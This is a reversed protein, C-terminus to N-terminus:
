CSNTLKFMEYINPERKTFLRFSPIAQYILWEAGPIYEKCVRKNLFPSKYNAELIILHDLNTRNLIPIETGITYVLLQNSKLLETLNEILDWETGYLKALEEAKQPTRNVITVRFNAEKLAFIAAKAAGGAGIIVVNCPTIKRASLPGYVGECDTNYGTIKPGQKLILNVAGTQLATNDLETCYSFIEEKFPSTINAGYFDENHFITMAEELSSYDLLTYSFKVLQAKNINDRNTAHHQYAAEFLKPSLSHAISDGILALKKM